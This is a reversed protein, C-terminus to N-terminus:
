HLIKWIMEKLLEGDKKGTSVYDVGKSKLDYERLLHIVQELQSRSYSKASQKYERLFYPSRLGLAKLQDQDPANQLFKLMYVKSFYNYLAGLVVPMPNKKPNSIFYQVIRNAKLVDRFGLAKQLEFVNYEKSIGINAEIEKTTIKAGPELNIAMKDLENSIKSLDAGLYEGILQAAGIDIQFKHKALYDVIWDPVQNDYLPKAQLVVAKEKIKKGFKTNFKFTKHKHAIVLITTPSPNEVYSLLDKLSRMEQAEKVIVVQYPAMMPFRRAVDVVTKFDVEKGYLITHNFAKEAEGLVHKDIYDTIGDIFYSEKGHLFYVPQYEKKKLQTLIQAYTM